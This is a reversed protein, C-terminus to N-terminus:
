TLPLLMALVFKAQRYLTTSRAGCPTNYNCPQHLGELISVRKKWNVVYVMYFRDVIYLTIGCVM